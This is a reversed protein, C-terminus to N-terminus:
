SRGLVRRMVQAWRWSRSGFIQSLLRDRKELKELLDLREAEADGLRRELRDLEELLRARVQAALAIEARAAELQASRRGLQAELAAEGGEGATTGHGAAGRDEPPDARLM